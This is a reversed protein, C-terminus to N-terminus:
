PISLFLQAHKSNKKQRPLDYLNFFVTKAGFIKANQFFGLAQFKKANQSKQAARYSPSWMFPKM